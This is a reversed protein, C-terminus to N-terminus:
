ALEFSVKFSLALATTRTSTLKWQALTVESHSGPGVIPLLLLGYDVSGGGAWWTRFQDVLVAGNHFRCCWLLDGAAPMSVVETLLLRLGWNQVTSVGTSLFSRLVRPLGCHVATNMCLVLADMQTIVLFFLYLHYCIVSILSASWNVVPLCSWNAVPLCSWNVVPLCSWNVVPLCSWNAVPLCSWNAVPLCSWNAVPLCSWNAVPLLAWWLCRTNMPLWLLFHSLLTKGLNSCFFWLRGIGRALILGVDVAHASWVVPAGSNSVPFLTTVFQGKSRWIVLYCFVCIRIWICPTQAVDNYTYLFCM